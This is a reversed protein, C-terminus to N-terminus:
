TALTIEYVDALYAEVTDTETTSSSEWVLIELLDMECQASSFHATGILFGGTGTNIAAAAVGEQNLNRGNLRAVTASVNSSAAARFVFISPQDVNGGELFTRNGAFVHVSCYTTCGFGVGTAAATKNLDFLANWTTRRSRLRAVVAITRAATGSSLILAANSLNTGKGDFRLCWRQSVEERMFIPKNAATAQSADNNQGSQDEWTSVLQNEALVGILDDARLWLKPSTVDSLTFGNATRRAPIDPTSGPAEGPQLASRSRVSVQEVAQAVVRELSLEELEPTISLTDGESDYDTGRIVFRNRGDVMEGLPRDPLDLDQAILTDGARVYWLPREVGGGDMVGGRLAVAPRDRPDKLKALISDALQLAQAGSLEGATHLIQRKGYRKQSPLDEVAATTKRVSDATDIYSVRIHNRVDLRSARFIGQSLQDKRCYWTRAGAGELRIELQRSDWVAPWYRNGSVDGLGTWLEIAERPTELGSSGIQIQVSEGTDTIRTTAGDIYSGRFGFGDGGGTGALLHGVAALFAYTSTNVPTYLIESLTSYYGRALCDVKGGLVDHAPEDLIGYFAIDAAEWIELHQGMMNSKWRAADIRDSPEYVFRCEGFGGPLVTSFRLGSIQGPDPFALPRGKQNVVGTTSFTTFENEYVQVRFARQSM